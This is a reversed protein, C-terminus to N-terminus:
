KTREKELDKLSYGQEIIELAEERSCALSYKMFHVPDGFRNRSETTEDTISIGLKKLDWIRAGLRFCGLHEYAELQSISSCECLYRMIRACQTDGLVANIRERVTLEEDNM